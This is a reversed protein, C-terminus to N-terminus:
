ERMPGAISVEPPLASREADILNMAGKAIKNDLLFDEECRAIIDVIANGVTLVDYSTM